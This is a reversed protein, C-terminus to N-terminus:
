SGSCSGTTTSASGARAPHDPRLAHVLLLPQAADARRHVRRLRHDVAVPVAAGHRVQPAPRAAACAPARGAHAAPVVGRQPRADSRGTGQALDPQRDAPRGQRWVRAAPRLMKGAQWKSEFDDLLNAYGGGSATCRRSSPPCRIPGIGEPVHQVASAATLDPSGAAALTTPVNGVGSPPPSAMNVLYNTDTALFKVLLWAQDPHKAGKPIGVITGGVRSSGLLEPHDDAAPFPATGYNLDPHKGRMIFATRWEGDLTM